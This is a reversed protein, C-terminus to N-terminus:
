HEESRQNGNGSTAFLLDELDQPNKACDVKIFSGARAHSQSHIARAITERGSGPEGCVLVNVADLAARQVQEVVQQMAPSSSILRESQPLGRSSTQDRLM